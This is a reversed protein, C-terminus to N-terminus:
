VYRCELSYREMQLAAFLRDMIVISFYCIAGSDQYCAASSPSPM